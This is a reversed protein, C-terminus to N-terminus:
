TLVVIRFTRFLNYISGKQAYLYCCVWSVPNRTKEEEEERRPGKEAFGTGKMSYLETTWYQVAGIVM